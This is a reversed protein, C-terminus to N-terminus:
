STHTLLGHMNEACALMCLPYNSNKFIKSDHAYSENLSTM